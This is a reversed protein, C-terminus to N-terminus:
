GHDSLNQGKVQVMFMFLKVWFKKCPGHGGLHSESKMDGSKVVNRVRPSEQSQLRPVRPEAPAKQHQGHGKSVAVSSPERCHNVEAGRHKEAWSRLNSQAM